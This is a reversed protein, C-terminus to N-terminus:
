LDLDPTVWHQDGSNFPGQFLAEQQISFPLDSNEALNVPWPAQCGRTEVWLTPNSAYVALDPQHNM